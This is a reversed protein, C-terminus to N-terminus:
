RKATILEALKEVAFEKALYVLIAPERVAFGRVEGGLKIGSKAAEVEYTIEWHVMRFKTTCNRRRGSRPAPHLDFSCDRLTAGILPQIIVDFGPRHMDLRLGTTFSPVYVTEGFVRSVPVVTMRLPRDLPVRVTTDSIVSDRIALRVDEKRVEVQGVIWYLTPAIEANLGVYLGLNNQRMSAHREFGRRRILLGGEVNRPEVPSEFVFRDLSDPTSTASSSIRGQYIGGHVGMPLTAGLFKPRWLSPSFVRLDSYLDAARVGDLFDFSAGISVVAEDDRPIEFERPRGAAGPPTGPERGRAPRALLGTCIVRGSALATVVVVQGAFERPKGTFRVSKMGHTFAQTRDLVQVLLQADEPPSVATDGDMVRVILTDGRTKASTDAVIPDPTNARCRQIQTTAAGKILPLPINLMHVYSSDKGAPPANPNSAAPPASQAGVASPSGILVAIAVSLISLKLM